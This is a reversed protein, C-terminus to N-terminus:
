LKKFKKNNASNLLKLTKLRKVMKMLKWKNLNPMKSNRNKDKTMKKVNAFNLMEKSEKNRCKTVNLVSKTKQSVSLKGRTEKNRGKTILKPKSLL